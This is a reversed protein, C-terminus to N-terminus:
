QRRALDDGELWELVMCARGRSDHAMAVLRVVHPNSIRALLQAEQEFRQAATPETVEARLRKIAVTAGTTRDTGRYVEAFAGRGVLDGLEFREGVRRSGDDDRVRDSEPPRM